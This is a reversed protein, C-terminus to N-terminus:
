QLSPRLQRGHLNSTHSVKMQQSLQLCRNGMSVWTSVSTQSFNTVTTYHDYWTPTAKDTVRPRGDCLTTEAPPYYSSYWDEYSTVSYPLTRRIKESEAAYDIATSISTYSVYSKWCEFDDEPLDRIRSPFIKPPEGSPYPPATSTPTQKPTTL